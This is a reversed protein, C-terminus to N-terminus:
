SPQRAAFLKRWEEPSLQQRLAFRMDLAAEFAQAEIADSEVYVRDFDSLTAGRKQMLEVIAKRNKDRKSYLAEIDKDWRKFVGEINERRGRDQVMALSEKKLESVPKGTLVVGAALGGGGLLLTAVIIILVQGSQRSM